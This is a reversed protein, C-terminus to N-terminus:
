ETREIGKLREALVDSAPRRIREKAAATGAFSAPLLRQYPLTREFYGGATSLREAREALELPDLDVAEVESPEIRKREFRIEALQAAYTEHSPSLAVARRYGREAELLREPEGYRQYHWLHGDALQRIVVPDDGARRLTEKEAARWNAEWRERQQPDAIAMQIAMETLWLSPEPDWRDAEAAERIASEAEGWRGQAWTFRFQGLARETRDVPLLGTRHWATILVLGISGAALRAFQVARAQTRNEADALGVAAALGADAATAAPKGAGAPWGIQIGVLVWLPLAVGPVTLGGAFLLNVAMAAVAWGALRRYPEAAPHYGTGGHEEPAPQRAAFVYFAVGGLTAVLGADPSPWFGLLWGFLGAVAVGVTAGVHVARVSEGGAPLDASGTEEVTPMEDHTLARQRWVTRAVLAVGMAVVMLGAPWGGTTVTQWFWNHPDAIQETSEAARYAEYRAKFQGPGVGWWPHDGLMRWSAIWYRLRVEVSAPAQSIWETQAGLRWAAMAGGISGIGAVLAALTVLWRGRRSRGWGWDWLVTHLVWALGILGVSAVASRSRSAALMGVVLAIAVLWIVRQGPALRGWDRGLLGVLVVSAGVLAAAMSNALAFPGTLGGDLLRNRFTIWLSSGEEAEIGAARLLAAPDRDFEALLAPHGISWQHWGYVATGVGVAAILKMWIASTAPSASCRRAASLAAAAAVWWWWENVAARLNSSDANVWTSVALWIALGWATSEVVTGALVGSGLGDGRALRVGATEHGGEPDDSDGNRRVTAWRLPWPRAVIALTAAFLLLGVFHRADGSTVAISDCPWYGILVITAAILGMALALANDATFLSRGAAPDTRDPGLAVDSERANKLRKRKAM